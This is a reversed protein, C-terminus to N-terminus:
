RPAPASPKKRQTLALTGIGAAFLLWAPMPGTVLLKYWAAAIITHLSGDKEIRVVHPFLIASRIELRGGDPATASEKWATNVPADYRYQTGLSRGDADFTHLM